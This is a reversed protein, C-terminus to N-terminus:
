RLLRAPALTEALPEPAGRVVNALVEGAALGGTMGHGGLGALWYLGEHRPDKGVVAARDATAFTRLCAWSRRVGAAALPPAVRALRHALLELAEPNPPPLEAPWETEDCPSALVGGSEPRFYVGGDVSWTVHGGTKEAPADLLVLHRRLPVLPLPAGVAAGLAAAWAGAALVVAGAVRTTGDALTARWAGGGSPGLAVVAQGALVQVGRRRAERSLGESVRHLDIVGDDPCWLAAAESSGALAPVEHALAAGELREFRVGERAGARAAVDLAEPRSATLLVGEAGVCGPAVAELLPRSRKALAVDGPADALHLFIAANRGSSHAWAFPEREVLTVTGVTALHWAASFGAMGGGVVLFDSPKV